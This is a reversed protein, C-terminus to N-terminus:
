LYDAARYRVVGPAGGLLESLIPLHGAGIVVLVREGDGLLSVINAFITINRAYWASLLKAGEYGTGAGVGAFELYAQHSRRVEEPDNLLLLVERLSARAFLERDRAEMDRVFSWFRAVFRPDEREAVELAAGVPFDALHDVPFVRDHGLRAALRFGVQEVESRGLECKGARYARFAENVSEGDGPEREVAVRTPAFAALSEVLAVVEEQREPLLVDPFPVDVADGASGAFHPAGLLFVSGSPLTVNRKM